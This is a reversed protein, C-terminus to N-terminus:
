CSPGRPRDTLIASLQAHQAIYALEPSQYRINLPVVVAGIFAAGFFGELFEISNPALIGVNDGPSVGLRRLARAVTRAGSSLERYTVREDPTVFAERDPAQEAARISLDGITLVESWPRTPLASARSGIAVLHASLVDVDATTNPTM